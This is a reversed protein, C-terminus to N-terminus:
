GRGSQSLVHARFAREFDDLSTGTADHFAVDFSRGGAMGEVVRRVREEGHRDLLFRFAHHATGYVLAASSRYLSAPRALPDPGSGDGDAHERYFRGLDDFGVREHERATVSAMGERFWLPISRQAATRADAGSAQYMVCHTLEHLVLTDLDADTAVGYSWTRPSQLHLGGHEAWARMWPVGRQGTARELQEHTAHITVEIPAVLRGWRAAVPAARALAREVRRASHVDAASYSLRFVVGGAAVTEVKPASPLRGHACAGALLFVTCLPAIRL